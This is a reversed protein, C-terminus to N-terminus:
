LTMSNAREQVDAMKEYERLTARLYMAVTTDVSVVPEHAPVNDQGILGLLGAVNRAIEPRLVPPAGPLPTFSAPPVRRKALKELQEKRAYLDDFTAAERNIKRLYMATTSDITVMPEKMPTGLESLLGLKTAIRLHAPNRELGFPITPVPVPPVPPGAIQKKLTELQRQCEERAAQCEALDRTLKQVSEQLAPIQAVQQQLGGIQQQLGVIQQNLTAIQAEQDAIRQRLAELTGPAPVTSQCEELARECTALELTLRKIQEQAEKLAGPQVPPSPGPGPEPGPEPVEKRKKKKEAELEAKTRDLEAKTRDFEAKTRQLEAQSAALDEALKKRAAKNEEVRKVLADGVDQEEKLQVELAKVLEDRNDRLNHDDVEIRADEIIADREPSPPHPPAAMPIDAGAVPADVPPAAPVGRRMDPPVGAAELMFDRTDEYLEQAEEDPRGALIGGPQHAQAIHGRALENAAGVAANVDGGRVAQRLPNFWGAWNGRRLQEAMRRLRERRREFQQTERNRRERDNNVRQEEMRREFEQQKQAARQERENKKLDYEQQKARLEANLTAESIRNDQAAKARINELEAEHEAQDAALQADHVEKAREKDTRQKERIALLEKLHNARERADKAQQEAAKADDRLKLLAQRQKQKSNLADSLEQKKQQFLEEKAKGEAKAEEEMRALEEHTDYDLIIQDLRSIDAARENKKLSEELLQQYRKAHDVRDRIHKEEMERDKADRRTQLLDSRQRAKDRLSKELDTKRANFRETAAEGRAESDKQMRQLEEQVDDEDLIRQLAALDNAYQQDRAHDQMLQLYQKDFDIKRQFNDEETTRSKAERRVQMLQSKQQSRTRLATELEAKRQEFKDSEAKSRTEVDKRMRALADQTDEEDLTRQLEALDEKKDKDLAQQRMLRLREAEHNLDEQYRKQALAEDRQKRQEMMRKVTQERNTKAKDNAEQLKQEFLAKDTSERTEAAARLRAIEDDKEAELTTLELEHIEDDRKKEDLYDKLLKRKAEDHKTDAEREKFRELEQKATREQHKTALFQTAKRDLDDKKTKLRQQFTADKLNADLKSEDVMQQLEQLGRQYEDWMSLAHYEADRAREALSRQLELMQKQTQHYFTEEAKFRDFTEAWRDLTQLQEAKRQYGAWRADRTIAQRQLDAAAKIQERTLASWNKLNSDAFSEELKQTAIEVDLQRQRADSERRIKEMETNHTATLAAKERALQEDFAERAAKDDMKNRALKQRFEEARKRIAEAQKKVEEATTAKINAKLNRLSARERGELMMWDEPNEPVVPLPPLPDGTRSFFQVSPLAALTEAPLATSQARLMLLMRILGDVNNSFVAAHLQQMLSEVVLDNRARVRQDYALAIKRVADLLSTREAPTLEIRTTTAAASAGSLKSFFPNLTGVFGLDICKSMDRVWRMIASLEFSASDASGAARATAALKDWFEPSFFLLVPGVNSILAPRTKWDEDKVPESSTAVVTGAAAPAAAM